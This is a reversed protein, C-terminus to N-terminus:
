ARRRGGAPRYAAGGAPRYPAAPASARQLWLLAAVGAVGGIIMPIVDGVRGEPRTIVIYAGLLSFAAIGAVGLAAARRALVGIEMAVLGLVVFMGLLLVTRGNGGFHHIAFNRLALPTRDIFLGGMATVPSAQPRVFAAALTAVGIAVAAALFETVAGVMAGRQGLARRADREARWSDPHVGTDPAALMPDASLPEAYDGHDQYGPEQYGASGDFGDEIEQYGAGGGYGDPGGDFADLEGAYGNGGQAWGSWDATGATGGYGGGYSSGGQGWGNGAGAYGDATGAYGGAAGRYGYSAAGSYAGQYGPQSRYGAASQYSAQPEQRDAGDQGPGWYGAGQAYADGELAPWAEEPTIAHSRRGAHRPPKRHSPDYSM